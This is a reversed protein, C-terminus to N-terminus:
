VQVEHGPSNAQGVFAQSQNFGVGGDAGDEDLIIVNDSLAVMVPIAARMGLDVGQFVSEGMSMLSFISGEVDREFGTAMPAFRGRATIGDDGGSNFLNNRSGAIWGFFDGSFAELGKGPGSDLDLDPQHGILGLLETGPEKFKVPLMQRPHDAFPGLGEVTFEGGRGAMGLPDGARGGALDGVPEAAGALGDEDTGPGDQGVVRLKGDAELGPFFKVRGVPYDEVRVQSGRDGGFENL